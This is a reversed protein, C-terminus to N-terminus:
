TVNNNEQKDSPPSQQKDMRYSATLIGVIAMFAVNLEPEPHFESVFVPATFNVAWVAAVVVIIISRLKNSM